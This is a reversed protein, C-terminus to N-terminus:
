ICKLFHYNLRKLMKNTGICACLCLKSETLYEQNRKIDRPQMYMHVLFSTLIHTHTHTHTHTNHTQTHTHTKHKHIPAPSNTHTHTITKKRRKWRYKLWILVTVAQQMLRSLAQPKLAELVSAGYRLRRICWMIRVGPWGIRIEDGLTQADLSFCYTGNKEWSQHTSAPARVRLRGIVIRVSQGCLWVDGIM